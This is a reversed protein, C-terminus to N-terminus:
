MSVLAACAGVPVDIIYSEKPFARVYKFEPVTASNVSIQGSVSVIYRVADPSLAHSGPPLIAVKMDSANDLPNFAVWDVGSDGSAYAIEAGSYASLDHLGVGVLTGNATGGGVSVWLATSAVGPGSNKHVLSDGADMHGVCLLFRRCDVYEESIM